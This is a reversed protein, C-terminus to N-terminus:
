MIIYLSLIQQDYIHATMVSLTRSSKEGVAVLDNALGNENRLAVQPKLLLMFHGNKVVAEDSLGSRANEKGRMDATQHAKQSAHPKENSAADGPIIKRLAKGAVRTAANRAKKSGIVRETPKARM